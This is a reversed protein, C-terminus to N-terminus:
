RLCFYETEFVGLTLFSIKVSQFISYSLNMQQKNNTLLATNNNKNKIHGNLTKSVKAEALRTLTISGRRFLPLGNVASTLTIIIQHCISFIQSKMNVESWQPSRTNRV